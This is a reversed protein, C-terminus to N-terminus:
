SQFGCSPHRLGLREMRPLVEDRLPAFDGIYDILGLAMGNLGADHLQKFTQAVDDYSGRVAFTGLGSVLQEKLRQISNYPMTRHRTREAVGEEIGTWDGLDYVLHHYYEDAEKRTPRCILAAEPTRCCSPM